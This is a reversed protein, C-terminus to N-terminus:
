FNGFAILCGQSSKVEMGSLLCGSLVPFIYGKSFKKPVVLHYIFGEVIYCLRNKSVLRFFGITVLRKLTAITTLFPSWQHALVTNNGLTKSTFDNCLIHYYQKLFNEAQIKNM